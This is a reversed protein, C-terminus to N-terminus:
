KEPNIVYLVNNIELSKNIINSIGVFFINKEELENNLFHLPIKIEDGEFYFVSYDENRM